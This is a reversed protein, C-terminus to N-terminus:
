RSHMRSGFEQCCGGVFGPRISVIASL